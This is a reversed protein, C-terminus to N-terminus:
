LQYYYYGPTHPTNARIILTCTRALRLPRRRKVAPAPGPREKTIDNNNNNNNIIIIIITIIIIATLTSERKCFVAKETKDFVNSIYLSLSM